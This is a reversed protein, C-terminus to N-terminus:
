TSCKPALFLEVKGCLEFRLRLYDNALKEVAEEGEGEQKKSCLKCQHLLTANHSNGLLRNGLKALSALPMKVYDLLNRGARKKGKHRREVVEVDDDEPVFTHQAVTSGTATHCDDLSFHKRSTDNSDGSEADSEIKSRKAMREGKDKGM